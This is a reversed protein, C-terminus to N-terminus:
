GLLEASDDEVVGWFLVFGPNKILDGHYKLDIKLIRPDGFNEFFALFDIEGLSIKLNKVHQSKKGMKEGILTPFIWEYVKQKLFPKDPPRCIERCFFQGFISKLFM